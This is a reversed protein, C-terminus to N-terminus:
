KAKTTKAKTAKKADALQSKIDKHQTKLKTLETQRSKIKATLKALQSKLAKASAV